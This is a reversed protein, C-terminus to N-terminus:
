QIDESEEYIALIGGAASAIATFFTQAPYQDPTRDESGGPYLVRGSGSALVEGTGLTINQGGTSINQLVYSIRKINLGERDPLVRVSDTGITQKSNLIYRM